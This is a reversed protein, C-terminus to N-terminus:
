LLYYKSKAMVILPFMVLIKCHSNNNVHIIVTITKSKDKTIVFVHFSEQANFSVITFHVLLLLAILSVLM